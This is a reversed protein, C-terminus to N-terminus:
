CDIACLTEPDMERILEATERRILKSTVGRKLLEQYRGGRGKTIDWIEAFEFLPISSSQQLNSCDYERKIACAMQDHKTPMRFPGIHAWFRGIVNENPKRFVVENYPTIATHPANERQATKNLWYASQADLAEGVTDFHCTHYKEFKSEFDVYQSPPMDCRGSNPNEKKLGCRNPLRNNSEADAPYACAVDSSTSPHYIVGRADMNPPGRWPWTFFFLWWPVDDRLASGVEDGVTPGIAEQPKEDNCTVSVILGNRSHYAEIIRGLVGTAMSQQYNSPSEVAEGGNDAAVTAPATEGTEETVVEDSCTCGRGESKGNALYHAEAGATNTAGLATQLDPYRRLYCQWDCAEIAADSCTCDRGEPQGHALYHAEAGATNTAGLATQLDPYRSLYCQWDCAEITADVHKSRYSKKRDNRLEEGDTEQTSGSTTSKTAFYQVMFVEPAAPVECSEFHTCSFKGHLCCQGDSSACSAEEGHISSFTVKSALAVRLTVTLISHFCTM